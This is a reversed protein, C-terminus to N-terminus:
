AGPQSSRPLSEPEERLAARRPAGVRPIAIINTGEPTGFRRQAAGRQAMIRSLLMGTANDIDFVPAGALAALIPEAAQR